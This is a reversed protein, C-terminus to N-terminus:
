LRDYEARAVTLDARQLEAAEAASFVGSPRDLTTIAPQYLVRSSSSAPKLGQHTLRIGDGAAVASEIDKFRGAIALSLRGAEVELLDSMRQRRADQQQRLLSISLGGLVLIPIVTASTLLVLLRRSHRHSM